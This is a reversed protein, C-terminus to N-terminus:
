EPKPKVSLEFTVKREVGGLAAKITLKVPAATLPADLAASLDIPTERPSVWDAASVVPEKIQATVGPPLGEVSLQTKMTRVGDGLPKLNIFLRRLEGQKLALSEKSISPQLDPCKGVLSLLLPASERDAGIARQDFSVTRVALDVRRDAAAAAGPWIALERPTVKGAPVGRTIEANEYFYGRGRRVLMEEDTADEPAALVSPGQTTDVRLLLDLPVPSELRLLLGGGAPLEAVRPDFPCAKLESVEGATLRGSARSPRQSSHYAGLLGPKSAAPAREVVLPPPAEACAFALPLLAAAALRCFAARRAKPAAPAKSATGTATM